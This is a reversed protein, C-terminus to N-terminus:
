KSLLNCDVRLQKRKYLTFNFFRSSSLPAVIKQFILFGQHTHLNILRAKKQEFIAVCNRM